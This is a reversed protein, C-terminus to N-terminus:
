TEFNTRKLDIKPLFWVSDIEDHEKLLSYLNKLSDILVYFIEIVKVKAVKKLMEFWLGILIQDYM